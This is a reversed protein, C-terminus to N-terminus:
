RTRTLRRRVKIAFRVADVTHIFATIAVDLAKEFAREKLRKKVPRM